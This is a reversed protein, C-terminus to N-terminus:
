PCSQATAALQQAVGPRLLDALLMGDIGIATPLPLNTRTFMTMM